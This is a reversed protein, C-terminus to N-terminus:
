AFMKLSTKCYEISTLLRVATNVSFALVTVLQIWEATGGAFTKIRAPYKKHKIYVIIMRELRKFHEKFKEWTGINKIRITVVKSSQM